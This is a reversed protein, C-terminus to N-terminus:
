ENKEAPGGAQEFAEKFIIGAEDPTIGGQRRAENTTIFAAYASKADNFNVHNKLRQSTATGTWLPIRRDSPTGGQAEHLERIIRCHDYHELSDKAHETSCGLLCRASLPQRHQFRRATGWGNCATKLVAAQVRPTAGKKLHGLFRLFRTGLMNENNGLNWRRLKKRIQYQPHYRDKAQIAKSIAAQIHKRNERRRKKDAASAGTTGKRILPRAEIGDERLRLVEKWIISHVAQEHWDWLWPLRGPFHLERIDRQTRTYLEGCRLGGHRRNENTHVRLKAARATLEANKFEYPFGLAKLHWLEEARIWGGPGPTAKRLAAQEMKRITPTHNAVQATFGLTSLVYINYILAAFHMGLQNWQWGRLKAELRRSATEWEREEKGPGIRVGLYIASTEIQMQEWAPVADTVQKRHGEATDPWLPIVVTKKINVEMGSIHGFRTLLNRLAPLQERASSM